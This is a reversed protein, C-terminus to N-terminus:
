REKTYIKEGYMKGGIKIINDYFKYRNYIDKHISILKSVEERTLDIQWKQTQIERSLRNLENRKLYLDKM